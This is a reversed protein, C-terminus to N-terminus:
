HIEHEIAKKIIKEDMLTIPQILKYGKGRVSFIDVGIKEADSVANWVSVRSINYKKALAEGSHFRGDSLDALISFLLNPM